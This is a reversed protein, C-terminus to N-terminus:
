HPRLCAYLFRRGVWPFYCIFRRVQKQWAYLGQPRNPRKYAKRAFIVIKISAALSYHLRCVEMECSELSRGTWGDPNKLDARWHQVGAAWCRKFSLDHAAWQNVLVARRWAITYAAGRSRIAQHHFYRLLVASRRRATGRGPGLRYSHAQVSGSAINKHSHWKPM